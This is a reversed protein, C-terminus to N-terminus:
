RLEILAANYKKKLYEKVIKKECKRFQIDGECRFWRYGGKNRKQGDWAYIWRDEIEKRRRELSFDESGTGVLEMTETDYEKYAVEEQTIRERGNEDTECWINLVKGYVRIKM